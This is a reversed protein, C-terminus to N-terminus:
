HAAARAFSGRTHIDVNVTDDVHLLFTSPNRLGWKVYPVTLQTSAQLSGAPGPQVTFSLTTEHDQGALRIVGSVDIQATGDNPIAGKIETPTFTIEPFKASELVQAHMNKDRSANDTNGSTADIVVAGSAHGTAQDWHIQGGRLQFTGHVTHLTAPLTFHIQTAAPDLTIVSEQAGLRGACTVVLCAALLFRRIWRLSGSYTSCDAPYM